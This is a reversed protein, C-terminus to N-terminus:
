INGIDYNLRDIRQQVKQIQQQLKAYQQEEQQIQNEFLQIYDGTQESERQYIDNLRQIELGQLQIFSDIKSTQDIKEINTKDKISEEEIKLKKLDNLIDFCKDELESLFNYTEQEEEIQKLYQNPNNIKLQTQHIVELDQQQSSLSSTSSMRSRENYQVQTIM